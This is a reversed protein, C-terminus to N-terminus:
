TPPLLHCPRGSFPVTAQAWDQGGQSWCARAWRPPPTVQPVDGAESDSEWRGIRYVDPSSNERLNTRCGMFGCYGLYTLLSLSRFCHSVSHTLRPIPKKQVVKNLYLKRVIRHILKLMCNSSSQCTYAGMYGGGCDPYLVNQDGRFNGKWTM